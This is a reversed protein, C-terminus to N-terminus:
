VLRAAHLRTGHWYTELFMGHRRYRLWLSNRVSADRSGAPEVEIRDHDFMLHLWQHDHEM